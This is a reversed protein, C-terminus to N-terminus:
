EPLMQVPSWEGAVLPALEAWIEGWRYEVHAIAYGGEAVEAAFGEPTYEIEHTPDLRWEVGLERKLPVRWDREFLPARVLIRKAGTRRRLGALFAGRETLHEIVNSLVVVDFPGEPLDTTADARAYTVSPHAHLARAMSLNAEDRDVGVVVAGARDAIDRSLAGNGCGVDLVRECKRIRGVFFDHYRTHRHKTHVNGGYAVAAAGQLGYFRADLRMLFAMAAKPDLRALRDRVLWIVFNEITPTEFRRLGFGLLRRSLSIM